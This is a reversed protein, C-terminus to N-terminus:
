FQLEDDPENPQSLKPDPQFDSTAYEIRRVIDADREGLLGFLGQADNCQHRNCILSGQQWSLDSIQTKWFCRACYHWDGGTHRHGYIM